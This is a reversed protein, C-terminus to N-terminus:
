DFYNDHNLDYGHDHNHDHNHDHHWLWPEHNGRSNCDSRNFGHDFYTKSINIYKTVFVSDMVIYKM